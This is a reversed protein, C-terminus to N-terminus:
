RARPTHRARGRLFTWCAETKRFNRAFDPERTRRHLADYRRERRFVKDRLRLWPPASADPWTKRPNSGRQTRDGNFENARIQPRKAVVDAFGDIKRNERTSRRHKYVLNRSPLPENCKRRDPLAKWQVAGCVALRNQGTKCIFVSGIQDFLTNGGVGGMRENITRFQQFFDFGHAAPVEGIIKSVM